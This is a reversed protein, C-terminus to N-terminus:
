PTVTVTFTVPTGQAAGAADLAQVTITASGATTGATVLGAATVSAVAPTDSTVRFQRSALVNNVVDLAQLTLQQSAGAALSIGNVTAGAANVVRAKAAPAQVAVTTSGRQFDLNAFGPVTEVSATITTAFNSPAVASALGTLSDVALVTGRDTTSWVVRRDTVTQQLSDTVTATFQLTQGTYLTPTTPTVRVSIIPVPTVRVSVTDAVVGVKPALGTDVSAIVRATGLARPSIAGAATVTAITPDLSRWTPPRNALAQNNTDIVAAGLIVTVSPALRVIPSRPSILVQRVPIPRVTIEVEASKGDSSARITARGPAVGTVLGTPSVTAVSEDSSTFAVQRRSHTIVNGSGGLPVGSAQVTQGPAIVTVPVQLEVRSVNPVGTIFSCASLAVAIAAAGALRALARRPSAHLSSRM